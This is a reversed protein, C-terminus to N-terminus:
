NRFILLYMADRVHDTIALLMCLGARYLDYLSSQLLTVSYDVIFLLSAESIIDIPM